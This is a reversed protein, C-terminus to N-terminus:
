RGSAARRSVGLARYIPCFGSWATALMVAAVILLVVGVLTGVGVAFAGIVAIPAIVFARIRRDLTIMNRSM